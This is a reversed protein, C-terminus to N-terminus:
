GQSGLVSVRPVLDAHGISSLYDALYYAHNQHVPKRVYDELMVRAEPQRGLADLMEAVDLPGAPSMGIGLAGASRFANLVADHDPFQDLWPLGHEVIASRAVEEADPDSLPWWWDGQDDGRSLQGITRRLNCNYENVWHGRLSGSRTMEPVFVGFDLRFTGYRRERLGPVETWAPPEKPHQWFYVVHVLGADTERNFCHRRKRFGAERLLGVNASVVKAMRSAEPTSMLALRVGLRREPCSVV